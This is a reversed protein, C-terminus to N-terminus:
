VEYMCQISSGQFRPEPQPASQSSVLRRGQGASKNLAPGCMSRIINGSDATIAGPPGADALCVRCLRPSLSSVATGPNARKASALVTAPPGLPVSSLWNENQVEKAQIIAWRTGQEMRLVHGQLVLWRPLRTDGCGDRKMDEGARPLAHSVSQRGDGEREGDTQRGATPERQVCM